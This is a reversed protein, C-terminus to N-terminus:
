RREPCRPPSKLEARLAALWADGDAGPVQEAKRLFQTVEDRLGERVAVEQAGLLTERSEGEWRAEDLAHEACPLDCLAACVLGHYAHVIPVGEAGRAARSLWARSRRLIADESPDRPARLGDHDGPRRLPQLLLVARVWGQYGLTNDSRPLRGLEALIAKARAPNAGLLWGLEYGPQLSLARPRGGERLRLDNRVFVAYRDEISVLTWDRRERMAHMLIRHPKFTFRAVVVNVRYDALVQELVRPDGFARRIRQIHEPGYFPVRGDVLFRARPVAFMLYWSDEIAAFVRPSQAHEALWVGSGAPLGVMSLGHGFGLYPPLRVASWPVVAAALTASAGFALQLRRAPVAQSLRALGFAIAPASLLLFETVFRISRFAALALVCACGLLARGATGSRLLPRVCAALLLVQLIPALLLWLPDTPQWSQWESLIVRYAPDAVHALAGTVIAPGYPSICSALLQACLVLFLRRRAAPQRLAAAFYVGVLVVGLLHSGHLNVWAVHVVGIGAIVLADLRRSPKGWARVLYSCGILYLASFPLALLHPRVTFRFRAAPIAVVLLLSCLLAARSGAVLQALLVILAGSVALLLCKAALLLDAGGAQYLRYGLWDSLWEYNHWPAPQAKWFSLTDRAPVHGLEVIQRGQALHGFTDPNDLAFVGALALALAAGLWAAILVRRDCGPLQSPPVTGSVAQM